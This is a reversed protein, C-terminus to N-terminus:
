KVFATFDTTGQMKGFESVYTKAAGTKTDTVTLEARLPTSSGFLVAITPQGSGNTNGQDLLKVLMEINNESNFYFFVTESTSSGFGTVNKVSANTDAANNDFAGRYKLTAKFRNDLLCATTANAICTSNGSNGDLTATLTYAGTHPQSSTVSFLTGAEIYYTGASAFTHHIRQRSTGSTSLHSVYTVNASTGNGLYMYLFVEYARSSYDIDITQGARVTVAYVDEYSDLFDKCTATTIVGNITVPPTISKSPCDTLAHYGGEAALKRSDLTARKARDASQVDQAQLTATLSLLVFAAAFTRRTM